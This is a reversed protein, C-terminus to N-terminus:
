SSIIVINLKLFLARYFLEHNLSCKCANTIIFTINIKSQGTPRAVCRQTQNLTFVPLAKRDMESSPFNRLINLYM